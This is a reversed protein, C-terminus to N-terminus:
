NMRWGPRVEDGSRGHKLKETCVLTVPQIITLVQLVSPFWRSLQIFFWRDHNALRVRGHLRRRLVILQHRLMANEAELRLKSKFSSALGAVGVQKSSKSPELIAWIALTASAGLRSGVCTQPTSPAVPLTTIFESKSGCVSEFM